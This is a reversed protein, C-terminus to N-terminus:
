GDEGRRLAVQRSRGKRRKPPLDGPESALPADTWAGTLPDWYHGDRELPRLIMADRKANHVCM